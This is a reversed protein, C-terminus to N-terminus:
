GPNDIVPVDQHEKCRKEGEKRLIYESWGVAGIRGGILSNSNNKAPGHWWGLFVVDKSEM